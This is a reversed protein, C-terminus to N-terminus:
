THHTGTFVHVNVHVLSCMCFLCLCILVCCVGGRFGGECWVCWPNWKNYAPPAPLLLEVHQRTVGANWAAVVSTVAQTVMAQVTPPLEVAAASSSATRSSSSSPHAQDGDGAATMTSTTDHMSSSAAAQMAHAWSNTVAASTNNSNNNDIAHRQPCTRRNHGHQGCLVCRQNNLYSVKATDASSSSSAASATNMTSSDPQSPSSSSPTLLPCGRKNHGEQGCHSCTKLRGAQTRSRAARAEMSTRYLRQMSESIRRYSSSSPVDNHCRWRTTM